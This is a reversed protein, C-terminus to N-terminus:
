GLPERTLERDNLPQLPRANDDYARALQDLQQRSLEIPEEFFTWVVGETCPPTTLSGAYRFVTGSGGAPLLDTADIEGELEREEGAELPVKELAQALAENEAGTELVVGLVAFEEDETAHVIHVEAPYRKGDIAHESPVHFHFQDLDYETDGKRVSGADHLSVEISHGTNSVTGPAPESRPEFKGIEGDVPDTLDIPSQERGEGCERFSPDLSAWNAPGDEGSYSWDPTAGADEAAGDGPDSDGGCGALALVGAVLAGAVGRRL